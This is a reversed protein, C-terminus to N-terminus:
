EVFKFIRLYYIKADGDSSIIHDKAEINKKYKM